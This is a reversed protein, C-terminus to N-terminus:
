SGREKNNLEQELVVVWSRGIRLWSKADKRQRRLERTLVTQSIPERDPRRLESSYRLVDAARKELKSRLSGLERQIQRVTMTHPPKRKGRKM